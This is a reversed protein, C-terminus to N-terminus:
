VHQPFFVLLWLMVPKENTLSLTEEKPSRGGPPRTAPDQDQPGSPRCANSVTAVHWCKEAPPMLILYQGLISKPEMKSGTVWGRRPWANKQFKRVWRSRPALCAHAVKLM